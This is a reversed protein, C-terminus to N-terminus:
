TFPMSSTTAGISGVRCDSSLSIACLSSEATYQGSSAVHLAIMAWMLCAFISLSVTPPNHSVTTKPQGGPITEQADHCSFSSAFIAYATM